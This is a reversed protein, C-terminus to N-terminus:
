LIHSIIILVDIKSKRNEHNKLQIEAVGLTTSTLTDNIFSGHKHIQSSLSNKTLLEKEQLM